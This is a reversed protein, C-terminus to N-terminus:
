VALVLEEGVGIRVGTGFELVLDSGETRVRHEVAKGGATVSSKATQTGGWGVRVERLRVEGRTVSLGLRKGTHTFEGWGSATSWFSRFRAASTKPKVTLHGDAAHFSFGSLAPIAAWSGMARSYHHGCEAENWPNRREGDYRRRVNRIVELGEPILGRYLMLVAASYEFGTMVEAFYPFPIAPRQGKGYDCIVLAAEDNLAYVRQVSEHSRLNRKYNYKLISRLTAEINRDNLLSGLGAVDALTQGVLQDVLCGDGVQFDPNQTDASGMGSILGKAVKDKPTGQIKQVYYEGNFLNADIWRSGQDFLRRYESGDEGVARAMEEAARLAGLYWVGCLPNPGLFEVDYTNHQVGEMVGDRNADWGGPIWAFEIARKAAPWHKRLWATDGSLRWDLYLHMIQGMQGDAAATEFRQKGDPLLKRFAQFGTEDTSYGFASERLSRSLAPFLWATATEYNWVHTCNGFCCGRADNAGEFGHFVGDATRFCTTSALTSLNAMAAEKVSAPLTTRRIAAVFERTRSALEGFHAATYTAAAWADAFRSCYYNGIVAKEDGKPASWGCGDPTRNPFHWSLLFTFEASKGAAITRQVCLSGVADRVAAEPGLEGDASFDDWFHLPGVRWRTGGRWGRLATVRAEADTLASVAFSGALPDNAALFPNRMLLGEIGEGKRTENSRGTGGVPNDVSFAIGVKAAMSAPNEVRYKLVAVPLGSEDADLPFFPSFAELTVKVPLAKSGFEVRALPYEGLFRASDLRPLGPVNSSGLGSAGEYPPLIESELVRAVAKGGEAQAWISAFGYSPGKGKNPHNFIEWDRFQGRGGLSISGAGIGGLPFAIMRTAAGTHTRPYKPDPEAASKTQAMAAQPVLAAGATSVTKLFDRRGTKM